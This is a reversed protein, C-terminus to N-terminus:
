ASIVEPIHQRGVAETVTDSTWRGGGALVGNVQLEMLQKADYKNETEKFKISQAQTLTVSIVHGDLTLDEGTLDVLVNHAEQRFTVHIASCEAPDAGEITLNYTPTTGPILM